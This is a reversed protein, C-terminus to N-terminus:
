QGCGLCRELELQEIIGGSNFCVIIETNEYADCFIIVFNPKNAADSAANLSLSNSLVAATLVSLSKLTKM